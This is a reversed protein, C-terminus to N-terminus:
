CCATLLLRAAAAATPASPALTASVRSQFLSLSLALHQLPHTLNKKSQGDLILLSPANVLEIGVSVRKKEGGSIGRVNEDGVANHQCKNLGLIRLTAEVRAYKRESPWNSPLRTFASHTLIDRPTLCSLMIDAQPVVGILGKARAARLDSQLAGEIRPVIKGGKLRM